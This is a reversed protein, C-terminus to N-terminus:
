GRTPSSPLGPSPPSPGPLALPSRLCATPSPFAVGVSSHCDFSESATLPLGFLSGPSPVDARGKLSAVACDLRGRSRALVDIPHVNAFAMGGVTSYASTSGDRFALEGSRGLRVPRAEAYGPIAEQSRSSVRRDPGPGAPTGQCVARARSFLKRWASIHAGTFLDQCKNFVARDVFRSVWCMVRRERASTEQRPLGERLAKPAPQGVGYTTCGIRALPYAPSPGERPPPFGGRFSHLAGRVGDLLQPGKVAPTTPQLPREDLM